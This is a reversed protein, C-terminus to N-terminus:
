VKASVGDLVLQLVTNPSAFSFNRERMFPERTSLSPSAPRPSHPSSEKRIRRPLTTPSYGEFLDKRDTSPTEASVVALRYFGLIIYISRYMSKLIYM